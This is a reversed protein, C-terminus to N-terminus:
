HWWTMSRLCHVFSAAAYGEVRHGTSGTATSIMIGDKERCMDDNLDAYVLPTSRAPRVSVGDDLWKTLKNIHHKWAHTPMSGKPPYYM